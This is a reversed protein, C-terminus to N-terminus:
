EWVYVIGESQEVDTPKRQDLLFGKIHDDTTGPTIRQSRPLAATWADRHEATSFVFIRGQHEAHAIM